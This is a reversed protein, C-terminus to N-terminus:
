KSLLQEALDHVEGFTPSIKYAPTSM